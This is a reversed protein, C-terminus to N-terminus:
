CTPREDYNKHAVPTFFTGWDGDDFRFTEVELKRPGECATLNPTRRAVVREATEIATLGDVDLAMLFFTILAEHAKTSTGANVWWINDQYSYVIEGHITQFTFYRAGAEDPGVFRWTGELDDLRNAIANLDDLSYIVAPPELGVGQPGQPGARGQPGEQGDAGTEGMRGQPGAPGTSGRQGQIGQVGQEGQPGPEGQPGTSGQEGQMGQEGQPGQIGQEGQPGTLGVPGECAVILLVILALVGIRALARM